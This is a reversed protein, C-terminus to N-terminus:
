DIADHKEKHAARALEVGPIGLRQRRWFHASGVPWDGGVYGAHLDAFDERAHSAVSVFVRNEARDVVGGRRDVVGARLHHLGAPKEGATDLMRVDATRKTVDFSLAALHRCM